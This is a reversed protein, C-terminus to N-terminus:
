LSSLRKFHIPHARSNFARVSVSAHHHVGFTSFSSYLICCNSHASFPLTHGHEEKYTTIQKSKHSFATYEKTQKWVNTSALYKCKAKGESWQSFRSLHSLMKYVLDQWKYATIWDLPQTIIQWLEAYSTGIWFVFTWWKAFPTCSEDDFWM